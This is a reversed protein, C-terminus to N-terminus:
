LAIRKGPKSSVGCLRDVARRMQEPTEHEREAPKGFGKDFTSIVDFMTDAMQRRRNQQRRKKQPKMHEGKKNFSQQVGSPDEM